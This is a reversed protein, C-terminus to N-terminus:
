KRLSWETRTREIFGEKELDCLLDELIDRERYSELHPDLDFYGVIMSLSARKGTKLLYEVIKARAYRRSGEFKSQRVYHRSRTNPNQIARFALAGYDMLASYWKRPDDHWLAKEVIPLIEKDHVQDSDPFFFYLFIRRINTEVFVTPQGYAFTAIARATYPGVGPLAELDHIARPFKGKYILVVTQAAKHLYLARRNYGLGHWRALVDRPSADALAKVTPFAHLFERYKLLVREVQTQQLMVESVMIRYPNRTLRWPLTHRGNREHWDLIHKQFQLITM